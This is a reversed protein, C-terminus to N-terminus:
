GQVNLRDKKIQYAIEHLLHIATEQKEAVTEGKLNDKNMFVVEMGIEYAKNVAKVINPSMSTTMGIFTDDKTGLVELQHAFVNEFGIDNALATILSTNSTLAICPIYIDFAYKGMLEAAFHEAEAALGGNGAIFINPTTRL